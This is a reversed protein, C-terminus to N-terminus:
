RVPVLAFFSKASHCSNLDEKKMQLVKKISKVDKSPLNAKIHLLASLHKESIDPYDRVLTATELVIMSQDQLKIVEAVKPLVHHLWDEKSEYRTFLEQIKRNDDCIKEAMAMQQQESKLKIKKKMIRKSYEAIVEFHLRKLLEQFCCPKLKRFEHIHKEALHLINDMVPKSSTLWEQTILVKYYPKLPLHMLDALYRYGTDELGSLVSLCKEKDEAEFPDNTKEIYDRFQKCNFMNAKIVAACNKHKEKDKIFDELTKKYRELLEQLAWMVVHMMNGFEEDLVEKAEKVAGVICQIVDIAIESHYFGDMQEPIEGEMWKTVENGVAKSLWQKIESERSSVYQSELQKIVDEPLLSGLSKGDIEKELDRHKLIDNQYYNHVWGLLYACDDQGLGFETIKKLQSSFAIHYLKAYVNCIDYGEPYCSKVNKVVRLLDEKVQKGMKFIDQKISSLKEAGMVELIDEMRQEVAKQLVTDLEKRCERPRWQPIRGNREKEELCKKDREEEQEISRVASALRRLEEGSLTVGAAITTWLDQSFTEYALKLEEEEKLAEEQNESGDAYRYLKEELSILQQGAESIRRLKLYEEFTLAQPSSDSNPKTKPNIKRILVLINGKLNKKGKGTKNKPSLDDLQENAQDKALADGATDRANTTEAPLTGM